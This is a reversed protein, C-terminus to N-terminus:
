DVKSYSISDSEKVLENFRQGVSDAGVIAGFVANAVPHYIYRTGTNFTVVLNQTNPDYELRDITSSDTVVVTRSFIIPSDTKSL